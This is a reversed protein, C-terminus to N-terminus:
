KKLESNAFGFPLLEALKFSKQIGQANALLVITSDNSFEKIRQLCAGCPIILEETDAYVLIQSIKTDGGAVMAAIAGTEACTGNPYSINEVNCGSYFNHRSSEIAAGVPFHSYPVYANHSINKALEYLKKETSSINMEQM